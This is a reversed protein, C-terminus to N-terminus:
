RSVFHLPKNFVQAFNNKLFALEDQRDKVKGDLRADLLQDLIQRYIPGPPIGMAKLDRGRLEATVHRYRHLYHSVVKRVEDKQTKAMMFLLEEPKFPQLARYIDSPKLDPLQLFKYLVADVQEYTWLIRAQQGDTLELRDWVEELRRPSLGSLLGLLYVWWRDLPEDLFSLEYWSIM